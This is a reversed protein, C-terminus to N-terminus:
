LARGIERFASTAYEISFGGSEESPTPVVVFTVDSHAVADEHSTTARLRERNDAILGDLGPEPVPARGDNLSEVVREDVDVGIVPFGRSAIAAAMCAGLKGLGVVSFGRM